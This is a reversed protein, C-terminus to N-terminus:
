HSYGPLLLARRVPKAKRRKPSEAVADRLQTRNLVFAEAVSLRDALAANADKAERCLADIRNAAAAVAQARALRETLVINEDRAARRARDMKMVTALSSVVLTLAVLPFAWKKM